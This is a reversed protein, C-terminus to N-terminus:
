VAGHSNKGGKCHHFILDECTLDRSLSLGRKSVESSFTVSCFCRADGAPVIQVLHRHRQQIRFVIPRHISPLAPGCLGQDQVDEGEGLLVERASVFELVIAVLSCPRLRIGGYQM